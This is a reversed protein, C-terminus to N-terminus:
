ILSIVLPLGVAVLGNVASVWKALFRNVKQHLDM